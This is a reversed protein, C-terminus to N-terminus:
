TYETGRPVILMKSNFPYGFEMSRFYIQAGDNSKIQFATCALAAPTSIAIALVVSLLFSLVTKM